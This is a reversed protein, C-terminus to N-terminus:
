SGTISVYAFSTLITVWNNGENKKQREATKLLHMKNQKNKTMELWSGAMGGPASSDRSILSSSAVSAGSRSSRGGM